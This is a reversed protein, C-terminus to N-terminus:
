FSKFIIGEGHERHRQPEAEIIYNDIFAKLSLNNRNLSYQERIGTIQKINSVGTV